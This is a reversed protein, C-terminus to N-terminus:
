GQDGSGAVKIAANLALLNTQQLIVLSTPSVELLILPRILSKLKKTKKNVKVTLTYTLKITEKVVVHSDLLNNKTATVRQTNHAGIKENSTTKTMACAVNKIDEQQLIM